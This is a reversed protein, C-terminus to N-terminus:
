GAPHGTGPGAQDTPHEVSHGPKGAPPEVNHGIQDAPSEVGHGTQDASHEVGHESQEAPPEVNHGAQGALEQWRGEEKLFGFMEEDRFCRLLNERMKALAEEGAKRFAMHEYLPSDCFAYIQDVCSLMKEMLELAAEADQEEVALELACSTAHYEGMDFVRALAQQKKVLMHAKEREGNGLALAYIDHLVLNMMQFGSYLLEEYAQYAERIRGTRSYIMGQKRKKEPNQDSFCALYEEAKEYEGKRFSHTFLSDAANRRIDEDGSELLRVYCATLYEEYKEADPIGEMLRKADLVATMQWLLRDCNPYTALRAKAWRFVDEYSETKLRCGLERILSDIEGDTLEEQFSLLTDPTIDLLRAIPALLTIDPFSNGKEWKNVAPASVGLREAMEEQTLNKEKRYKRIVEGIQM